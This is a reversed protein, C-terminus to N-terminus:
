EGVRVRLSKKKKIERSSFHRWLSINQLHPLPSAFFPLFVFIYWFWCTWFSNHATSVVEQYTYQMLPSYKSPSPLKFMYSYICVEKCNFEMKPDSGMIINLYCNQTDGINNMSTRIFHSISLGHTNKRKKQRQEYLLFVEKLLSIEIVKITNWPCEKM